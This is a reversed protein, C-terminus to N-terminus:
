AKTPLTLHTYSVANVNNAIALRCGVFAGTNPITQIIRNNTRIYSLISKDIMQPECFVENLIYSTCGDDLDQLLANFEDDTINPNDQTDYLKPITCSAHGSIDFFRGSTSTTNDNNLTPMDLISANPQKWGIRQRFVPLIRSIDFAGTNM